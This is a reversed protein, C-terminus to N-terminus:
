RAYLCFVANKLTIDHIWIFGYVVPVIQHVYVSLHGTYITYIWYIDLIQSLFIEFDFDMIFLM